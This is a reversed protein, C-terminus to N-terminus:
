LNSTRRTTKGAAINETALWLIPIVKFKIWLPLPLAATRFVILLLKPIHNSFNFILYVFNLKLENQRSIIVEEWLYTVLLYAFFSLTHNINTVIICRSTLLASMLYKNLKDSHNVNEIKSFHPRRSLKSWRGKSFFSLKKPLVEYKKSWLLKRKLTRLSVSFYNILEFINVDKISYGPTFKTKLFCCLGKWSTKKIFPM